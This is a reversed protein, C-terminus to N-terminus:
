KEAVAPKTSTRLRWARANTSIPAVRLCSPAGMACDNTPSSFASRSASSASV